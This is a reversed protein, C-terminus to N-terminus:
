QSRPQVALAAAIWNFNEAFLGNLDPNISIYMSGKVLPEASKGLQVKKFPKACGATSSGREQMGAPLELGFSDRWLRSTWQYGEIEMPETELKRIYDSAAKRQGGYRFMNDVAVRRLLASRLVENASDPAAWALLADGAGSAFAQGALLAGLELGHLAMPLAPPRTNLWGALLQVDESWDAFSMDGFRGTSEGIGRYDYRLCEIGRAALYRAWRVWPVYSSHREWAFPGVLLVRAVPEPSAHLMTHLHGGSVAFYGAQEKAGMGLSAKVL